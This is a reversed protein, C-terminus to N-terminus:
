NAWSLRHNFYRVQDELEHRFGYKLSYTENGNDHCQIILPRYFRDRYPVSLTYSNCDDASLDPPTMAKKLMPDDAYLRYLFGNERVFNENKCRM